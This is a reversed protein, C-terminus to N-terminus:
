TLTAEPRVPETAPASSRGGSPVLFGVAALAILSLLVSFLYYNSFIAISAYVALGVAAAIRSPMAWLTLGVVTEVIIVKRSYWTAIERVAEPSFSERLWNYIWFDRDVFYIEYLVQGSWYEATWKGAAGGLLIVSLITRSLRAGRDILQTDSEDIRGAFWASWVMAWWATTFTMDNYSGQHICLISLGVVPLWATKSRLLDQRCFWNFAIAICVFLYSGIVVAASSLLPSFFDQQIPLEIYANAGGILFPLKWILALLTGLQVLRYAVLQRGRVSCLQAAILSAPEDQPWSDSVPPREVQHDGSDGRIIPLSAGAGQITETSSV